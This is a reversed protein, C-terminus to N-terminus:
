SRGIEVRGQENCGDLRAENSTHHPTCPACNTHNAMERKEYIYLVKFIIELSIKRLLYEEPDAKQSAYTTDSGKHVGIQM